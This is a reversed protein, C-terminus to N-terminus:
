SVHRLGLDWHCTGGIEFEEVRSVYFTVTGETEFGRRSQILMECDIPM